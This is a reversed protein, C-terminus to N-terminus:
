YMLLWEIVEYNVELNFTQNNLEYTM